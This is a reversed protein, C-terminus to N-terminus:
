SELDEAVVPLPAYQGCYSQLPGIGPIKLKFQLREAMACL